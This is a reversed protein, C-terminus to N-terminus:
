HGWGRPGGDGHGQRGGHNGRWEGGGRRGHQDRPAYRDDWHQPRRPPHSRYVVVPPPPMAHYPYGGAHGVVHGGRHGRSHPPLVVVPRGPYTQYVPYAPYVVQPPYPQPHVVVPGHTRANVVGGPLQVGISWSVGNAHAPQLWVMAAWAGVALALVAMWRGSSPWLSVDHVTASVPIPASDAQRSPHFPQSPQPRNLSHPREPLHSRHPLHPLDPLDPM